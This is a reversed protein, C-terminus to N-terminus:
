GGTFNLEGQGRIRNIIARGVQDAFMAPNQVGHAHNEMNEIVVTMGGGGMGQTSGISAGGGLKSLPTFTAVEPGAEGALFLTPKTVLDSGGEARAFIKSFGGAGGGMGGTMSSMIAWQIQIRIIDAIIQQVMKSFAQTMSQMFSKGQFAMQVFSDGFAQGVNRAAGTGLDEYEKFYKQQEKAQEDLIKKREAAWSQWRATEEAAEKEVSDYYADAATKMADYSLTTNNRLADLEARAEALKANNRTMEKEVNSIKEGWNDFVLRGQMGTQQAQIQLKVLTDIQQNQKENITELAAIEKQKNSIADQRDVDLLRQKANLLNQLVPSLGGVADSYGQLARISGEVSVIEKNYADSSKELSELNDKNGQYVKYILGVGVTLATAWGLAASGALGLSKAVSTLGSNFISLIKNAEGGLGVTRLLDKGLLDLGIHQMKTSFKGAMKNHEEVIEGMGEKLSDLAEKSEGAGSSTIHIGVEVM